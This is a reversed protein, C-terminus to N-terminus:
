IKYILKLIVECMGFNGQLSEKVQVVIEWDFFDKWILIKLRLQEGWFIKLERDCYNNESQCSGLKIIEVYDNFFSYFVNRQQCFFVVVFLVVVLVVLDKIEVIFSM